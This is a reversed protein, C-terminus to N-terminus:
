TADLPAGALLERAVRVIEDPDFPKTLYRDAGAEEGRKRDFEQGKATLMVIRTAALAPEARVARCVEFGNMGPMMVDLVVLTPRERRIAELARAGDAASVLRVGEEELEELAQELLLRIHAEDDAILILRKM